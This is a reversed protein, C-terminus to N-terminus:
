QVPRLVEAPLQLPYGKPFTRGCPTNYAETLEVGCEQTGPFTVSVKARVSGRDWTVVQGVRVDKWNM